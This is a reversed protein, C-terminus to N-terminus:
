TGAAGESEGNEDSDVEELGAEKLAAKKADEAKQLEGELAKLRTIEDSVGAEMADKEKNLAEDTKPKSSQVKVEAGDSDKDNTDITKTSSKGAANGAKNMEAKEDKEKQADEESKMVGNIVKTERITALDSKALTLKFKVFDLNSRMVVAPNNPDVCVKAGKVIPKEKSGM